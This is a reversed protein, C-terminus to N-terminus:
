AVKENELWIVPLVGQHEIMVTGGAPNFRSGAGVPYHSFGPELGWSRLKESVLQLLESQAVTGQFSQHHIVFARLNWLKLSTPHHLVLSRMRDMMGSAHDDEEELTGDSYTNSYTNSPRPGIHALVAGADSYIIAIIAGNLNMAGLSSGNPDFRHFKIDDADVLECQGRQIAQEIRCSAMQTRKPALVLTPQTSSRRSKLADKQFLNRINQRLRLLYAYHPLLFM